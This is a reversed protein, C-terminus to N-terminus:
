KKRAGSMVLAVGAALAIGGVIPPVVFKKETEATAQLPGIDLVKERTRYSFGGMTLSIGGLIILLVGLILTVKM